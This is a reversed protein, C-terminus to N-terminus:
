GVALLAMGLASARRYLGMYCSATHEVTAARTTFLTRDLRHPIQVDWLQGGLGGGTSHRSRVGARKHVLRSRGCGTVLQEDSLAAPVLQPAHCHAHPRRPLGCRSAALEETATAGVVHNRRSNATPSTALCLTSRAAQPPSQRAAPPPRWAACCAAAAAPPLPLLAATRVCAAAVRGREMDMTALATGPM